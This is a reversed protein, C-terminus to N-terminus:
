VRGQPRVTAAAGREDPDGPAAAAAAPSRGRVRRGRPAAPPAPLPALAADRRELELAAASFAAALPELTRAADRVASADRLLDGDRLRLGVHRYIPGLAPALPAEEEGVELSTHLDIVIRTAERLSAAADDSRGDELASAGKRIHLLATELLRATLRGAIGGGPTERADDSARAPAGDRPPARRARSARPRPPPAPHRRSMGSRPFCRAAVADLARRACVFGGGAGLPGPAKVEM